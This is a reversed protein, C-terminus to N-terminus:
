FLQGLGGALLDQLRKASEGPVGKRRSRDFQFARADVSDPYAVVTGYIANIGLGPDYIDSDNGVPLIDVLDFASPLLTLVWPM